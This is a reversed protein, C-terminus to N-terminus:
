GAFIRLVTMPRKRIARGVERALEAALGRRPIATTLDRIWRRELGCTILGGTLEVLDALRLAEVEGGHDLQPRLHHHREIADACRDVRQESWGHHAVTGRALEAGEVTYVGGHSVAPYLGIDHLISAVTLVEGDIHWGRRAALEAAIHRCRLCHREMPGNTSRTAGRLRELAAREADTAILQDFTEIL